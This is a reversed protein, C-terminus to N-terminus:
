LPERSGRKGPIVPIVTLLPEWSGKFWPIVTLLPERSGKFGPIVSFLLLLLSGPAKLGPSYCYFSAGLLGM